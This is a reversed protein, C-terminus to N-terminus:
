SFVYRSPPRMTWSRQSEDLSVPSYPTITPWRKATPTDPLARLM